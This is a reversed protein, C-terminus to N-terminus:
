GVDYTYSRGNTRPDSGDSSSFLLLTCFKTWRRPRSAHPARFTLGSHSFRGAGLARVDAPPAHPPGLPRGEEFLRLRSTGLDDTELM